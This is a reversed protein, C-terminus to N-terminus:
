ALLSLFVLVLKSSGTRRLCSKFALNKQLGQFSSRLSFNHSSNKKPDKAITPIVSLQVDDIRDTNM